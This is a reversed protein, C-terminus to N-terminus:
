CDAFTFDSILWRDGLPVLEYKCINVAFGRFSDVNIVM